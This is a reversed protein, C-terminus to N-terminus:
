ESRLATIPDARTARIAPAASAVIAVLGMAVGVTAFVVPDTGSEGFLLPQVWRSAVLAAFFGSAVGASAFLLGDRVVLRVVDHSRAGLAIRVGLEHTRQAVDYAIVGYLGVAAVILALAGFAAFMTAGLKWSRRQADVLDELATVTVYAPAPMVRQLAGRVREIQSAADANAMRLFLRRGPRVPPPQEDPMYYMLRENDSISYQVADEAIGIVRTCPMTDSWLRLCQGIADRGPWLLGAMSESVVAVRSAEGRDSATFARGRVIRTGVVKFYDPTSAQYNFRGLRAVSDIGAVHLTMTSTAFPLGNVRAAYEVGPISQATELLRRRFAAAAATDMELGRFNPTVILVPGPDWGLRLGRVNDLSRVFLGAGVLLAV